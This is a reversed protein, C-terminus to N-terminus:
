KKKVNKKITRIFAYLLLIFGILQIIESVVYINSNGASFVFFGNAVSILLYSWFLLLVPKKHSNKYNKYYIFAISAAFVLATLHFIYYASNSFITTIMIFYILFFINDQSKSITLYLIYLGFLFLLRYFFFGIIFFINSTQMSEVRINFFGMDINKIVEYHVIVNTLIKAIFSVGILLFALALNKNNCNKSFKYCKYSYASILFLAIVSFIEFIVFSYGNFWKPVFELGLM